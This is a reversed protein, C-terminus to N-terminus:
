LMGLPLQVHVLFIAVLHDHRTRMNRLELNTCWGEVTPTLAQRMIGLLCAFTPGDGVEKDLGLCLRPFSRFGSSLCAGAQSPCVTPCICFGLCLPVSSGTTIPSTRKHKAHPSQETIAGCDLAPGDSRRSFVFDCICEADASFDSSDLRTHARNGASELFACTRSM